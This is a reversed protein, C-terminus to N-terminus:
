DNAFDSTLHQLPSGGGMTVHGAASRAKIMPALSFLRDLVKVVATSAYCLTYTTPYSVELDHYIDRYLIQQLGSINVTSGSKGGNVERDRLSMVRTVQEPTSIGFQKRQMTLFYGQVMLKVIKFTLLFACIIISGTAMEVHAPDDDAYACKRVQAYCM